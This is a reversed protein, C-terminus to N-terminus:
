DDAKTQLSTNIVAPFTPLGLEGWLVAPRIHRKKEEWHLVPQTIQKLRTRYSNAYLRGEQEDEINLQDQEVSGKM